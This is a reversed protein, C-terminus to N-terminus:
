ISQSYDVSIQYSILYIFTTKHPSFYEKLFMCWITCWITTNENCLIRLFPYFINYTIFYPDIESSFFVNASSRYHAKVNHLFTKLHLFFLLVNVHHICLKFMFWHYLDTAILSQWYFLYNHIISFSFIEKM